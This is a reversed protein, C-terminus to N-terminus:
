INFSHGSVIFLIFYVQYAKIARPVPPEWVKVEWEIANKLNKREEIEEEDQGIGLCQGYVDLM